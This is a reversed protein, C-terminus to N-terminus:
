KKFKWIHDVSVTNLASIDDPSCLFNKATAKSEKVMSIGEALEFFFTRLKGDFNVIPYNKERVYLLEHKKLM